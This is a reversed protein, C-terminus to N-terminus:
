QQLVGPSQYLPGGPVPKKPQRDLNLATDQGESAAAFPVVWRRLLPKSGRHAAHLRLAARLKYLPQLPLSTDCSRIGIEFGTFSRRLAPFGTNPNPTQSNVRGATTFSAACAPKGSASRTPPARIARRPQGSGIEDHGDVVVAEDHHHPNRGGFLV